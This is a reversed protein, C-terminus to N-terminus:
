DTTPPKDSRSLVKELNRVRNWLEPLKRFISYSRLFSQYPLAPSGYWKKSDGRLESPIGSQAQIQTMPPIKLHGAIGAQGGILSREGIKTSGAIGAQAAIATHEGIEVNHAVQILNDLKVGKRIITSGMTARDIVTNAGIEVADELVVNGIQSIKQYNGQKDFVFGFGDSGIVCNAHLTCQNGIICSHYIKVGPYITTDNGVKVKPGIYTQPYIICNDGISAEADIYATSAINCRKGITATTHIYATASVNNFSHTKQDFHNLLESIAQYVNQVKILTGTIPQSPNFDEAVLIISAQTTYAYPEYKPNALFTITGPIGEEIRSPNSVLVDPDGEVRGKVLKSIEKATIQM